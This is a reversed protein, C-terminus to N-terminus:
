KKFVHCVNQGIIYIFSKFKKTIATTKQIKHHKNNCKKMHNKSTKANNQVLKTSIKKKYNSNNKTNQSTKKEKKQHSKEM